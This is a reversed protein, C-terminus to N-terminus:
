DHLAKRRAMEFKEEEPDLPIRLSKKVAATTLIVNQTAKSLRGGVMARGEWLSSNNRSWNIKRVGKLKGKWGEPHARLLSNGIHGLAHLAIGHSHIFDQRIEGSSVKGDRVMRWEPLYKAVEEWFSIALDTASKQDSLELGELLAGTATYISSLTFLKRSRASLSSREMEVLDGFVRSKIVLLRTIQALDDRHDYLVGISRSPRVAYRNLDAFLQQCRELGRDIFFVVAISEDGLEPRERIAAEIAARRHQGDNIIFRADMPVHLLGVRSSNPDSGLADFKVEGDISATLASFAYDKPNTLIYSAIEPVRTRNLIRQARLEPSLEAEEEDFYFLKPIIRLPCMSTYYERTAQVGRIAPFTYGFRPDM